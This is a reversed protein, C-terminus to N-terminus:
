FMIFTDNEVDYSGDAFVIEEIGSLTDTGDDGDLVNDDTVTVRYSSAIAYDAFVGLYLVRDVGSDGYLRDDGAGGFLVDDGYGGYLRDDGAGGYLIDNGLGGILDDDGEKGSLYDDGDGGLLLDNGAKGLIRDNGGMGDITDDGDTGALSDKGDTGDIPTGSIPPQPDYAEFQGSNVHYVGDLFLLREVGSLVDTGEDGDAANLDVVTVDGANTIEFDSFNGVYTAVDEGEGGDITDDGAGGVFGDDGQDGELQDDGADGILLDDSGGGILTDSGALGSIIDFDDTGTIADDGNTGEFFPGLGSPQNPTSASM